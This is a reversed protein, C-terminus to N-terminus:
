RPDPRPSHYPVSAWLPPAARFTNLVDDPNEITSLDLDLVHTLAPALRSNYRRLEGRGVSILITM